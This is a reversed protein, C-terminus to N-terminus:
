RQIRVRFRWRALGIGIALLAVLYAIHAVVASASLGGIGADRALQTGHWLPSIYALWRGWDPLRTVPYFTGSFLFMPTVIFRFLINFAQGEATVSAAMAMVPAAFAAGTLTAAPVALVIQWRQAGGFCTMIALYLGSNVLLRLTVWLLHGDAIQTPSLPTAAM